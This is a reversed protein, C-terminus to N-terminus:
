GSIHWLFPWWDACHNPSPPDISQHNRYSWRSSASLAVMPLGGSAKRTNRDRIFWRFLDEDKSNRTAGLASHQQTIWPTGGYNSDVTGACPGWWSPAAVWIIIQGSVRQEWLRLSGVVQRCLPHEPDPVPCVERPQRFVERSDAWADREARLGIVLKSWSLAM